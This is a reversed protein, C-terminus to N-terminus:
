GHKDGHLSQFSKVIGDLFSCLDPHGCRKSYNELITRARPLEKASNALTRALNKIVQINSETKLQLEIADLSTEEVADYLLSESALERVITDQEVKLAEILLRESEPAKVFRLAEYAKARTKPNADTLYPKMVQVTEQLGINGIVSIAQHKDPDSAAQSLQTQYDQFVLTARAPEIDRLQHGITGLGLHATGSVLPDPDQTLSRVYAETAENPHECFTLNPILRSRRESSDAEQIAARILAQAEDNGVATLATATIKFAESQIDHKVLFELLANIEGPKLAIFAKLRQYFEMNEKPDKDLNQLETLLQDLTLDGLIKRDNRQRALGAMTSLGLDKLTRTETALARPEALSPSHDILAKFVLTNDVEFQGMVTEVLRREIHISQLRQSTEHFRYTGQGAVQKDWAKEVDLVQGWPWTLTFRALLEHSAQLDQHFWTEWIRVGQPPLNMEFQRLIDMIVVAEHDIHISQFKIRRITSNSALEFEFPIPEHQLQFLSKSADDLTDIRLLGAVQYHDGKKAIIKWQMLGTLQARVENVITDQQLTKQRGHSDFTIRYQILDGADFNLKLAYTAGAIHIVYALAPVILALCTLWLQYPKRPRIM